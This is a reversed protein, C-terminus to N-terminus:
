ERLSLITLLLGATHRQRARSTLAIASNPTRPVIGRVGIRSFATLAEALPQPWTLFVRRTGAAEREPCLALLTNSVRQFRVLLTEVPLMAVMRVLVWGYAREFFPVGFQPRAAEAM